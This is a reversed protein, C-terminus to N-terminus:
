PGRAALVDRAARASRRRTWLVSSLALAVASLLAGGTPRPSAVTCSAGDTARNASADPPRSGSTGASGSVGSGSECVDACSTVDALACLCADWCSGCHRCEPASCSPGGGSGTGPAGAAGAGGTAGAGASGAFGGAGSTGGPGSAGAGPAGGSSPEGGSGGAGGTGGAGGSGPGIPTNLPSLAAYLLTGDHIRDVLEAEIAPDLALCGNSRGQKGANSDSVYSAEHVVILRGRVNTNALDNPSGDPSLGDLRMSHPHTGDYIEGTLYFGLSSMHSGPTNSFHDAYGDHDPDTGDGHAVRHPEVAGSALEVVWFRDQGSFRSFDVVVIREHRPIFAQNVDFFAVADELLGRPVVGLPDLSAYRALIAGREPASSPPLAFVSIDLSSPAAAVDEGEPEIPADPDVGGCAVGLGGLVLGVTLPLSRPDM